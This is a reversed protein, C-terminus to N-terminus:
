GQTQEGHERSETSPYLHETLREVPVGRRKAIEEHSKLSYLAALTAKVANHPNPSGLSKVSIDHIGAAEMVARVAGSSIIGNGPASPKIFIKSAGYRGLIEHPITRNEFRVIPKLNKTAREIGKRIAETVENAKGLGYGVRGKGDGVVVLANFSFRRGGKVVKAVRSVKIVNEVLESKEGQREAV